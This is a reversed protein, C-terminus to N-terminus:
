EVIEWKSDPDFDTFEVWIINHSSNNELFIYTKKLGPMSTVKRNHWHIMKVEYGSECETHAENRSLYKKGPQNM